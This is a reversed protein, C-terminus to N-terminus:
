VRSHQRRPLMPQVAPGSCPVSAGLLSSTAVRVATAGPLSQHGRALSQISPHGRAPAVTPRRGDATPRPGDATPRRGDATPRRGDATPRRGGGSARSPYFRSFPPFPHIGGFFSSNVLDNLSEGNKPSNVKKQHNGGMKASNGLQAFDVELIM